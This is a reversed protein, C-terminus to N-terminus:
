QCRMYGSPVVQIWGQLELEVVVCLVENLSFGSRDIIQEVTTPEFGIYQLLGQNDCIKSIIPVDKIPEVCLLGMEDRVDQPSLVLRAGQQLLCHCGRAQAHYISGPIAFVDRNQDLAFKATILSGSKIAAEVVLTASSLGSIIRNRRPFHGANPPSTLPFESLLLGHAVIQEALARHKRPYVIDVGTGMVAVTWGGAALCGSHAQADIGLALGSVITIQSQALEYAFRWATECGMVSPQRTGVMALRQQQLAALDGRAYLIPPPDYIEALLAPYAPSGWSLIHHQDGALWALDADVQRFDFAKIGRAVNEPMGAHLLAAMPARFMDALDPWVRLCRAIRRPGLDHIRNCALLYYQSDM